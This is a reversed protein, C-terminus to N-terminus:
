LFCVSVSTLCSFRPQSFVTCCDHVQTCIQLDEIELLLILPLWLVQYHIEIMRRLEKYLAFEYAVPGQRVNGFRMHSEAMLMSSFPKM